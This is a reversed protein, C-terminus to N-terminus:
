ASSLKDTPHFPEPRLDLRGLIYDLRRLLDQRHRGTGTGGFDERLSAHMKDLAAWSTLLTEERELLLYSKLTEIDGLARVVRM